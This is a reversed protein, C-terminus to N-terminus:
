TGHVFEIDCRHKVRIRSVHLIHHAGLLALLHCIPNLDANLPNISVSNTSSILLTYLLLNNGSYRGIDTGSTRVASQVCLAEPITYGYDTVPNGLYKAFNLSKHFSLKLSLSFWCYAVTLHKNDVSEWCTEPMMIGMKLLCLRTNSCTNHQAPVAPHPQYRNHPATNLFHQYYVDLQQM